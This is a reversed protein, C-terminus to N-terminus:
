PKRFLIVAQIAVIGCLWAMGLVTQSFVTLEFAAGVVIAFLIASILSLLIFM